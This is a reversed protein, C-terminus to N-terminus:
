TLAVNVSGTVQYTSRYITYSIGGTTIARQTTEWATSYFGNISFLPTGFSTPLVFYLYATAATITRTQAKSGGLDSSLLSAIQADTIMAGAFAGWFRALYQPMVSSSEATAVTHVRVTSRFADGYHFLPVGRPSTVEYTVSIGNQVEVIKDGRRPEGFPLDSTTLLYDRSEWNEVLGNADATQFMSKGVTAVVTGSNTGRQYVVSAGASSKLRAALYAAGAAIMDAM